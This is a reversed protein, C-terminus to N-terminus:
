RAETTRVPRYKENEIEKERVRMCKYSCFFAYMDARTKRIKYVYQATCEFPKGCVDCKHKKLGFAKEYIKNANM